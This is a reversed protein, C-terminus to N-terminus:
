IDGVVVLLKNLADIISLFTVLFQLFVFRLVIKITVTVSCPTHPSSLSTHVNSQAFRVATQSFVFLAIFVVCCENIAHSSRPISEIEIWDLGFPFDFNCWTVLIM